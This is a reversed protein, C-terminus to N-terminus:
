AFDTAKGTVPDVQIANTDIAGHQGTATFTGGTIQVKAGSNWGTIVSQGGDSSFTGGYINLQSDFGVGIVVSVYNYYGSQTFTGDYINLTTGTDGTSFGGAGESSEVTADYVNITSGRDGKDREM